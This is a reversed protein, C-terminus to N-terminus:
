LGRNPSDIGPDVQNEVHKINAGMVLLWLLFVFEGIMAPWSLNFIMGKYNPLFLATFSQVLYAVGNIALWVGLFRPLFRSKYVLIALPFLWIGWFATFTITAYNSIKLFLFAVDQRQAVEFSKLVEGKLIMLSTINFAGLIFTCPVLVILFAVMLKSLRENVSEFLRYLALLLVVTLVIGIIDSIILTKFLFEHALMNNGTAVADGAVVIKPPVFLLSYMGNLAWILYWFGAIRTANKLAIPPMGVSLVGKTMKKTAVYRLPM